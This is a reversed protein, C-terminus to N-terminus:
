LNLLGIITPKNASEISVPQEDIFGSNPDISYKEIKDSDQYAVLLFKGSPHIKFHRPNPCCTFLVQFQDLGGDAM